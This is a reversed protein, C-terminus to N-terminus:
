RAIAEALAQRILPVAREANSWVIESDVAWYRHTVKDRMRALLTWEVTPIDTAVSPDAAVVAKSPM